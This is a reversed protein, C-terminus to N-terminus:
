GFRGIVLRHIKLMDPHFQGSDAMLIKEYSVEFIATATPALRWKSLAALLLYPERM